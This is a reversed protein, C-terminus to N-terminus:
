AHGPIHCQDNEQGAADGARVDGLWMVALGGALDPTLLGDALRKHSPLVPQVADVHEQGRIGPVVGAWDDKVQAFAGNGGLIQGGDPEVGGIDLVVGVAGERERREAVRLVAGVVEEEFRGVGLRAVGNGDPGARGVDVALSLGVQGALGLGAVQGEVGVGVVAEDLDATVQPPSQTLM